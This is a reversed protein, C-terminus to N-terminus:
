TPYNGYKSILDTYGNETKWPKEGFDGYAAISIDPKVM